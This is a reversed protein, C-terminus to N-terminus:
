AQSPAHVPALLTLLIISNTKGAKSIEQVLEAISMYFGQKKREISQRKKIWKKLADRRKGQRKETKEVEGETIVRCLLDKEKASLTNKKDAERNGKIRIHSKVWKFSVTKPVLDRRKEEIRRIRQGAGRDEPEQEEM